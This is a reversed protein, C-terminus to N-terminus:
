QNAQDDNEAKRNVQPDAKEKLWQKALDYLEGAESQARDLNEETAIKPLLWIVAAQKTSPLFTATLVCITSLFLLVPFVIHLFVNGVQKSEVIQKNTLRNGNEDTESYKCHMGLCFFLITLVFFMMFSAIFLIGIADLKLIAYVFFPSIEM